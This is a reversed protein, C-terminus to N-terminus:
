SPKVQQLLVCLNLLFITGNLTGTSLLKAEVVTADNKPKAKGGTTVCMSKPPITYNLAGTSLLKAEVVTADNKPKAKGGTTVCM